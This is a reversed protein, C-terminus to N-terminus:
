NNDYNDEIKKLNLRCQTCGSEVVWDRDRDWDRFILLYFLGKLSWNELFIIFM